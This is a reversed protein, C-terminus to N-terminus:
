LYKITERATAANESDPAVEILRQLKAKAGEMDGSRLLLMGYEFLGKAFDPDAELCKELLPRAREDDLKNLFEVAQNFLAAPDDPNAEQYRSLFASHAELDGLAKAANAAIALCRVSESDIELCSQANAM